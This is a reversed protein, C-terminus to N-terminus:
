WLDALGVDETMLVDDVCLEFDSGRVHACAEQAVAVRQTDGRLHRRQTRGGTPLRCMEFPLQPARDPNETFLKPDTPNVQWEFGLQDFSDVMKGDRDLMAGTGYTGLLGVADHFDKSHGSMNITLYQKYFRFLVTSDQHLDVNYLQYFKPNKGSPIEPVSITYSKSGGFTLPLDSPLLKVGNLYFHDKHFEVTHEDVRLAATEIYSFYTEITTRAHLDFGAGDHFDDSHVMVLDCEGHFTSHEQGWRQFHPDGGGCHGPVSNRWDMTVKGGPKNGCDVWFLDTISGSGDFDINLLRVADGFSSLDVTAKGNDGAKPAYLITGIMYGNEDYAAFAIKESNQSDLITANFLQVPGDFTFNMVGSLDDDPPFDPGNEDLILINGLPECNAYPNPTGDSSLPEGGTGWGPGGVPNGDGDIECMRNPAGLDPDGCVNPNLYNLNTCRLPSGGLTCPEQCITNGTSNPYEGVPVNTDFIRCGWGNGSSCDVTVGVDQQFQDTVYVGRELSDFNMSRVEDSCQGGASVVRAVMALVAAAAFNSLAVM